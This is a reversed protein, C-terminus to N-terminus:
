RDKDRVEGDSSYAHLRSHSRTGIMRLLFEAIHRTSMGRLEDAHLDVRYCTDVGLRRIRFIYEVASSRNFDTHHDIIVSADEFKYCGSRM